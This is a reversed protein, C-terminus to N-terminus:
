AVLKLNTRLKPLEYWDPVELNFVEIEKGAKVRVASHKTIDCIEAIDINLKRLRARHTRVQTKKFDLRQGQLWKFYYSATSNAAQM